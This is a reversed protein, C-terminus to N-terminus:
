TSTQSRNQAFKTMARATGGSPPRGALTRRLCFFSRTNHAQGQDGPVVSDVHRHNTVCRRCWDNGQRHRRHTTQRALIFRLHIHPCLTHLSQHSPARVASVLDEGFRVRRPVTSQDLGVRCLKAAPAQVHAHIGRAALHARGDLPDLPQVQLIAAHCHPHVAHAEGLRLHLPALRRRRQRRLYAQM